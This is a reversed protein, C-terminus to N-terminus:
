PQRLVSVPDRLAGVVAPPVAAAAAALLVLVITGATFGPPPLTSAGRYALTLGIPGGLACGLAATSLTQSVILAVITGRRAGLARRRGLDRRRSSVSGYVTMSILVLGAALAALVLGRGYRGLEGAVAARVRSLEVPTDVRLSRTNDADVVLGLAATLGAVDAPTKAVVVIRRVPGTSFTDSPVAILGGNLETLPAEFRAAGVVAVVSRDDGVVAGAPASLGLATQGARGVLAQGPEPLRTSIHVVPPLRGYVYRLAVPQGGGRFADNRANQAPGFGVAWETASLAAARAVDTADLGAFGDTDYVTITRTDAADIRGLVAQEASATQGTTALIVASIAAVLLVTLATSGRQGRATAAAERLVALPAADSLSPM